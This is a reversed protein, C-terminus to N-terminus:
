EEFKIVNRLRKIGQENIYHEKEVSYTSFLKAKLYFCLFIVICSIGVDIMNFIDFEKFLLSFLGFISLIGLWSYFARRYTSIGWLFFLTKVSLFLTSFMDSYNKILLYGFSGFLQLAFAVILVVILLTTLVRFKQKAYTSSLKGVIEAVEESPIIRKTKERLIDYVEQKSVGDKVLLKAEKRIKRKTM